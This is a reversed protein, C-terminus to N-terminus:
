NAISIIIIIRVVVRRRSQTTREYRDLPNAATHATAANIKMQRTPVCVGLIEREVKRFLRNLEEEGVTM